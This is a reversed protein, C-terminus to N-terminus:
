GPRRVLGAHSNDASWAAVYPGLGQFRQSASRTVSQRRNWDNAAAERLEALRALASPNGANAAIRALHDAKRRDGALERMVALRAM